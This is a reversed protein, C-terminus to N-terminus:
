HHGSEPKALHCSNSTLTFSDRIARPMQKTILLLENGRRKKDIFKKPHATSKGMNVRLSGKQVSIYSLSSPGRKIYTIKTKNLLRESNNQALKFRFVSNGWFVKCFM